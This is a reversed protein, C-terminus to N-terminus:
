VKTARSVVLPQAVAASRPRLGDWTLVMLAVWVLGFGAWRAPSMSEHDIGVGVAFQLVPALYQLLGIVSLPLRRTAAGFFLLPIATIAGTLFLLVTNGAGHHGFALDGRAEIVVLTVLAPVALYGTEIALSEVAGVAARKKFYGYLGFSTALVLAIWPLRGYDITLVVIAASGIGVAVWQMRRLRESLLVVGLLITFLPNIFYGLSTDVVRKSNVGWIYTGWNFTIVVAGCALLTRKERDALVARLAPFGRVWWLLVAVFALSWLMRHALIEIAGAPKLLPWYLPFLGWLLYATTGYALGRREDVDSGV